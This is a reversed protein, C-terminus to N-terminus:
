EKVDYLLIEVNEISHIYNRNIHRGFMTFFVIIWINDFSGYLLYVLLSAAVVFMFNAAPM